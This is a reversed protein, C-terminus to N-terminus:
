VMEFAQEPPLPRAYYFGQALPCGVSQLYTVQYETEVGEAVAVMGLEEIMQLM